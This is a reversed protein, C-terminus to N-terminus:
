DGDNLRRLMQPIGQRLVDPRLEDPAFQDLFRLRPTAEWPDPHGKKSKQEKIEAQFFTAEDVELVTLLSDLLADSSLPKITMRAFYAGDRENGPTFASTRQYAITSTLVRIMHKQDYGSRIFEVALFDLLEPHSPRNDVHLDDIPEVIGRGFFHSWLRNVAAKAFWPNAPSTVREALVPRFATAEDLPPTDGAPLKAPVVSGAGKFASGPIAIAPRDLIKRNGINNSSIVFGAPAERIWLSADKEQNKEQRISVRAFFAALGWFDAQTLERFPHDHCEACQYQQGLFLRATSKALLSPEPTISPDANLQYFIAEPHERLQGEATLISRVTENWRRNDNFGQALWGELAAADPSKISSFFAEEDVIARRWVHAFHLGYNKDALLADVLKVRKDADRDDLFSAAATATPVRGTVDVAVRRRFEADSSIGSAPINNAVLRAGIFEDVRKAAAAVDLPQEGASSRVPALACALWAVVSVVHCCTVRM